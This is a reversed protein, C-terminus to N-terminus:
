WALGWLNSMFTASLVFGIACVWWIIRKYRDLPWSIWLLYILGVAGMAMACISSVLESPWGVIQGVLVIMAVVVIDAMAGIAARRLVNVIFKGRILAENPAQALFFSPIGITFMTVLSLQSPVLPYRVGFLIALVAVVVSFINKVLFLSGSRELNNVVRRGERVIMPMRAFDSDLLVLQSVQMAAQSGSAMAVSCDADKLALVDNVGDGTMAVTRGTEQLTRIIGRKQDPTVRGFITYESAATVLARGKLTSADVAKGEIGAQAAVEAVTLPSDGSIVKVEVGQEKFYRFTAPATERVHNALVVLGKLHFDSTLAEGIEGDYEGFVVVRLGQKAYEEIKEQYKAYEERLVLEPAGLIYTKEAFKVGSYKYQSSFGMVEVSESRKTRKLKKRKVWDKLAAMTANDAKQSAVVEVLWGVMEEDEGWKRGSWGVVEKVTMKDDTITGTKDVCLVDVRALTEICKMDHVLVESRALRMVSLVLTATALLFLGEPIMGLVAAVAARVSEQVGLGHSLFQQLFLLLGIPIIAVGAVKVIQNLSRIMESQEGGKMQKAQATLKAIYSEEGVRVLKARCEGSVVFSGSLLEDGQTKAVEDAEGTLLAENVALEGSLVEADASIQDGARFVVTEGNELEEVPVEVIEETEVNKASGRVVRAKPANLMTLEDLVKKAKLGQIIGTLTNLIIIPLFTLDRYSGVLVLIIAIILFVLNFYTFTNDKIIEWATKSASGSKNHQRDQRKM